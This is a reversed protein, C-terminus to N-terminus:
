FDFQVNFRVFRPQVVATPKFWRNSHRTRITYTAEYTTPTNSNMMNYLDIGVNARTGKFRLIKAFRM